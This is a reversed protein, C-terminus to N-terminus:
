KFQTSLTTVFVRCVLLVPLKFYFLYKFLWLELINLDRVNNGFIRSMQTQMKNLSVYHCNTVASSFLSKFYSKYHFDIKNTFYKSFYQMPVKGGWFNPHWLNITKTQAVKVTALCFFHACRIIPCVASM